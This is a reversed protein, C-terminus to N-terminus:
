SESEPLLTGQTLGDRALSAALGGLKALDRLCLEFEDITQFASGYRRQDDISMQPVRSGRVDIQFTGSRSTARKVNAASRLFGNLYGTDLQDSASKVTGESIEVLGARVLDAIRVSVGDLTGPGSDLPPLLNQLEQLRRSLAECTAIYEALQDTSSPVIHRGPTFDVEEDLLDVLPVDVVQSPNPEFPGDPSNDALDIMRVSASGLNPKVPRALLWLHVPQTHSIAMGAPLAIVHTLVGRRILEARIRRGAKRYAVSPPMVVIARGGPAVHAYCHQLWALEGEARTPVGFEWRPDLLLGERGWDPVAVPPDCVVLAARLGPWHDERLSDGVEIKAGVARDLAARASAFRTAEPNVEQGALTVGPRDGVSFLLSGIGCAPDFVVGTIEGAFHRIAQVLRASTGQEVGARGPSGLFREILGAVVDAESSEEALGLVLTRLDPGVVTSGGSVLLETVDALGTLIEDGYQDRVAQWVLVEASVDDRKGHTGLWLDIESLAYLARGGAGSAPEPFDPYRKRWNSVAARTVGALKAIEAATVLASTDSGM